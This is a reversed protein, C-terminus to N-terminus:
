DANDDDYQFIVYRDRGSEKAEYLCKDAMEIMNIMTIDPTPILSIVGQSITVTASIKSGKHELKLANIDDKLSQAINKAGDHDTTPAIFAFEEGGYRAILDCPRRAHKELATAVKTLCDDGMLHGYTDNYPKFYDIDIMILTLPTSDRLSCKWERELTENFTRRNAIGTLADQSSLKKLEANAQIIQKQMGRMVLFAANREQQLLHHKAHSRIRAILEIKDPLKVLYDNAGYQFADRKVIPDDKSSLVIVPIDKTKENKRYFRVLTMGDINPLILDQLIITPQLETALNIAKTPDECYHFEFDKEEAIMRKIGEAIIPQDDVLLIKIINNDINDVGFDFENDSM